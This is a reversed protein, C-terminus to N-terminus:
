AETITTSKTSKTKSATALGQGVLLVAVAEPLEVDGPGFDESITNGDVRLDVHVKDNLTYAM